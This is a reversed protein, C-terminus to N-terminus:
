KSAEHKLPDLPETPPEFGEIMDIEGRRAQECVKDWFAAGEQTEAWEFGFGIADQLRMYQVKPTDRKGKLGPADHLSYVLKQRLNRDKVRRFWWLPTGVPTGEPIDKDGISAILSTEPIRHRFTSLRHWTEEWWGEISAKLTAPDSEVRTPTQISGPTPASDRLVGYFAFREGELEIRGVYIRDSSFDGPWRAVFVDQGRIEIVRPTFVEGGKHMTGVEGDPEPTGTPAPTQDPTSAAPGLRPKSESSLGSGM